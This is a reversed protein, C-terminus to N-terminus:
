LKTTENTTESKVSKVGKKGRLRKKAEERKRCKYGIMFGIPLANYLVNYTQNYGGSMEIIQDFDSLTFSAKGSKGDAIKEYEKLYKKLNRTM